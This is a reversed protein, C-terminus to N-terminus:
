YKIDKRRTFGRMSQLFVSCFLLQIFSPSRSSAIQFIEQETKGDLNLKTFLDKVRLNLDGRLYFGKGNFVGKYVAESLLTKGSGRTGVFYMNTKSLIAAAVVDTITFQKEAITLLPTRNVFYQNLTQRVDYYTKPILSSPKPAPPITEM